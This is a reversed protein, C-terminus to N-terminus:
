ASSKQHFSEARLTCLDDRLTLLADLRGAATALTGHNTASAPLTVMLQADAIHDALKCQLAQFWPEEAPVCWAAAIADSNM